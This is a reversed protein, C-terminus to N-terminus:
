KLNEVAEAAKLADHYTRAAAHYAALAAVRTERNRSDVANAAELVAARLEGITPATTM